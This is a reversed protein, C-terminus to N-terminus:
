AGHHACQSSLWAHTSSKVSPAHCKMDIEGSHVLRAAAAVPNGDPAAPVIQYRSRAIGLKDLEAGILAPDGFLVADVLGDALQLAQLANEDQGNIVGVTMRRSGSRAM